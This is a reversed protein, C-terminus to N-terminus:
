RTEGLINRSLIDRLVLIASKTAKKQLLFLVFVLSVDPPQECQIRAYFQHRIDLSDIKIVSRQSFISEKGDDVAIVVTSYGRDAHNSPAVVREFVVYASTCSFAFYAVWISLRLFIDL